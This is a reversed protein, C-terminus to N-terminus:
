SHMPASRTMEDESKTDALVDMEPIHSTANKIMEDASPIEFKEGKAERKMKLNAIKDKWQGQMVECESIEGFISKELAKLQIMFGPNPAAIPRVKWIHELGDKLAVGKSKMMYALTFSTARSKGAFCHVLVKNLPTEKGINDVLAEEIFQTAEEFFKVLNQNPSDLCNLCHYKFDNPFRPKINAACTLIHTIGIDQLTKKNYAAGISGLFLDPYVEGPIPDEKTLKMATLAKM